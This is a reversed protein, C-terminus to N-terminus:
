RLCAELDKPTAGSVDVLNDSEMMQVPTIVDSNKWAEPDFKMGYADFRKKAVSMVAQNDVQLDGIKQLNGIEEKAVKKYAKWLLESCYIRAEDMSFILDYPAGLKNELYERVKSIRFEFTTRKVKYDLNRSRRIFSYLSTWKVPGVAEIVEWGASNKFAAGVHSWESGTAVKLLASQQTQSKIFVLDGDKLPCTGAAFSSNLLTFSSLLFLLRLM